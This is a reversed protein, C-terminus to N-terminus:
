DYDISFEVSIEAYEVYGHAFYAGIMFMDGPYLIFERGDRPLQYKKTMGGMNLIIYPHALWGDRNEDFKYDAFHDKYVWKQGEPVTIEQTMIDHFGKIKFSNEAGINCIYYQPSDYGIYFNEVRFKVIQDFPLVDTKGSFLLKVKEIFSNYIDAEKQENSVDCSCLFSLCAAISAYIRLKSIPKAIKRPCYSSM